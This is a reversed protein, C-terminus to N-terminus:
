NLNLNISYVRTINYYIPQIYKSFLNFKNQIKKSIYQNQTTRVKFYM